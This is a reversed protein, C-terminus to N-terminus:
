SSASSRFASARISRSSIVGHATLSATNPRRAVANRKLEAVLDKVEEARERPAVLVADPTTVVVVDDLGLVATLREEAHLVCNRTDIAVVPGRMANGFEDHIAIDMIADWSGIDSWRFKGEVVAARDTREMVAYDISNQPSCAFADRDLRIFGLDTTAQATAAAVAQAMVPEFRALEDLLVDARFMFNGSNWLYGEAVYRTATDADPKEVFAAVARVEPIGVADGCRIYGYSTQRQLSPHWFYRHTRRRRGSLSRPV